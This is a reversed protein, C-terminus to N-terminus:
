QDKQANAKINGPVRYTVKGNEGLFDLRPAGSPDVSNVFRL